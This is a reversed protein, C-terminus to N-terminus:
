FLSPYYRVKKGSIYKPLFYQVGKIKFESQSLATGVVMFSKLPFNTGRKESYFIASKKFRPIYRIGLQPNVKQHGDIM